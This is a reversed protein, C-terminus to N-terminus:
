NISWNLVPHGSHLYRYHISVGGIALREVPQGDGLRHEDVHPWRRLAAPIQVWCSGSTRAAWARSPGRALGWYLLMCMASVCVGYSVALANGWFDWEFPSGALHMWLTLGAAGVVVVAAYALAAGLERASYRAMFDAAGLGAASLLGLLAANM